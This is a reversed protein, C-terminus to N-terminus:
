RPTRFSLCYLDGGAVLRTEVEQMGAPLLADPTEIRGARSGYFLRALPTAEHRVAFDETEDVIVIRTGPRAVRVMETVARARDSFFNIGGVHLVSDFTRDRFPLREAAGQFLELRLGRRRARRRCRRLMGWSIDLGFFWAGAPLLELNAGTGVSVELVRDAREVELHQLYERRRAVEGTRTWLAYLWTSADYFAAMRDYLRQYRRNPGELDADELFNPIGDRVPFRRGSESALLFSRGDETVLRLSEGSAPDQLLPLSDPTM